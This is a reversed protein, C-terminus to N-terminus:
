CLIYAIITNRNFYIFSKLRLLTAYCMLPKHHPLFAGRKKHRLDGTKFVLALKWFVLSIGILMGISLIAMEILLDIRVYEKKM